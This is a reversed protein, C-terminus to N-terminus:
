SAPPTIGPTRSSWCAASAPSRTATGRRAAHAPDSVPPRCRCAGSRRHRGAPFAPRATPGSLPSRASFGAPEPVAPDGAPIAAARRHTPCTCISAPRQPCLEHEPRGEPGSQGAADAPDAVESEWRALHRMHRDRGTKVGRQAMATTAMAASSPGAFALAASAAGAALTGTCVTSVSSFSAPPGCAPNRALWAFPTSAVPLNTAVGSALVSLLAAWRCPRGPAPSRGSRSRWRRASGAPHWGSRWGAHCRAIRKWSGPPTGVSM